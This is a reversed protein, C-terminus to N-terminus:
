MCIYSIVGKPCPGDCFQCVRGDEGVAYGSPCQLLCSGILEFFGAAFSNFVFHSLYLCSLNLHESLKLYLYLSM